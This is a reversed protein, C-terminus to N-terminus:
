EIKQTDDDHSYDLALPESEPPLENNIITNIDGKYDPPLVVMGKVPEIAKGNTTIDVAAKKEVGEGALDLLYAIARIDKDKVANNLLTEVVLERITAVNGDATKIIRDLLAKAVMSANKREEANRARSIQSRRQMELANEKTFKRGVDKINKNGRKEM